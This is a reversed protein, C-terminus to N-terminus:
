THRLHKAGIYDAIIKTDPVTSTIKRGLFYTCSAGDMAEARNVLFYDLYKLWFFSIRITAKALKRLVPRSLFALILNEIAWVVTTVPRAVLGHSYHIFRMRSSKGHQGYRTLFLIKM